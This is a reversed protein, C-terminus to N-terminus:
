KAMVLPNLAPVLRPGLGYSPRLWFGQARNTGFSALM